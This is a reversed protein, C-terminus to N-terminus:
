FIGYHTLKKDAFFLGTGYFNNWGRSYGIFTSGIRAKRGLKYDHFYDDSMRSIIRVFGHPEGRKIQGEWLVEIHDKPARGVPAITNYEIVRAIGSFHNKIAKAPINNEWCCKIANPNAEWEKLKEVDAM